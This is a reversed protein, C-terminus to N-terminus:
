LTFKGARGFATTTSGLDHLRASGAPDAWNSNSTVRGNSIEDVAAGLM